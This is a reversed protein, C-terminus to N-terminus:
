DTPPAVEKPPVYPEAEADGIDRVIIFPTLEDDQGAPNDRILEALQTGTRDALDPSCGLVEVDIDNADVLVCSIGLKEHIEACVKDPERPNLVALTHYTEFASHSYFGDIGAVDQGVIEYFVGRKGFVRCVAGCVSAWLILPLGKMDIALQLKYPEDMGIGNHNHTAFKSLFKAARGVKVDKMEVTNNQCMSIVKEGLTVIDGAQYLPSVYTRLVECYDEGREIFHTKVAYREYRHGDVERVGRVYYTVGNQQRENESQNLNGEYWIAM